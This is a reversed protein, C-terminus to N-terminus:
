GSTDAPGAEHALKADFWGDVFAIMIKRGSGDGVALGRCHAPTPCSSSSEWQM